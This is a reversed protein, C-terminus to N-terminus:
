SVCTYGRGHLSPVPALDPNHQRHSERLVGLLEEFDQNAECFLRDLLARTQDPMPDYHNKERQKANYWQYVKFGAHLEYTHDPLGLFRTVENMSDSVPRGYFMEFLLVHLHHPPYYKLWDRLHHAYLGKSVISGVDGTVKLLDAPRVTGGAATAADDLPAFATRVLRGFAEAPCPYGIPQALDCTSGDAGKPATKGPGQKAFKEDAAVACTIIRGDETERWRKFRCHHQFASYARKTPNRVIAVLRASPLLAHALAPSRPNGLYAPSKEYTRQMASSGTIVQVGPSPTGRVSTRDASIHLGANSDQHHRLSGSSTGATAFAPIQFEPFWELYKRWRQNLETVSTVHSFFRVESSPGDLYPHFSLLGRLDTTGAKQAGIVLFSPLCRMSRSTGPSQSSSICVGADLLSTNLCPRDQLVWLPGAMIGRTESRPSFRQLAATANRSSPKWEQCPHTVLAVALTEPPPFGSGGLWRAQPWSFLEVPLHILTTSVLWNAFMLLLCMFMICM